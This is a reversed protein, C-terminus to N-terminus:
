RVIWESEDFQSITWVEENNEPPCYRCFPISFVLLFKIQIFHKIRSVTLYDNRKIKFSTGFRKNLIEIYAVRNCPYIRDGVLQLSRGRCKMLKFIRLKHEIINWKKEKLQFRKWGEGNGTRDNGLLFMVEHSACKNKITEYDLTIPYKTVKIIINNDRCAKWFDKPLRKENLLLIGNTVLYITSSNMHSRVIGLMESLEPFLLPEGGLINIFDFYEQFKTLYKLNKDLSKLDCFNAESVSSYHACCKCNLNCHDTAHIELKPKKYWRKLFLKRFKKGSIYLDGWYFM